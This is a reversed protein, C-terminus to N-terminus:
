IAPIQLPQPGLSVVTLNKPPHAALWNNISNCTLGDILKQIEEKTRVHQLYYWDLAINGARAPSSEQQIILSRKIRGKLRDLEAQEIGSYMRALEGWTVDFTDQGHEPTTGAFAIVSGRDRLSHCMAYVSYVYGRKERVETFLRSSMGDSLAGIAGRLQFYDDNAYSIGDIAIGVLTQNSEVQIHEYGREGPTEILQENLGPRWDGFLNEVQDRLQPWNIKGAISLIGKNPLMRETVFERVDKHQLSELTEVRGQSSRGLPDGYYRRRLEQMVRQSLDDEVARVEQLCSLRADELQDEPLLPRLLLDAYMELVAPLSEQPMSGGFSTHTVSVSSSCDAGLNELDSVFQRSDREGAGRQLMESTLAALGAQQPKEHACGGPLLFAFAASELWDMEEAVLTLGNSLPHIHIKQSATAPM